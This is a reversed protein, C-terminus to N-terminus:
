KIFIKKFITKDVTEGEPKLKSTINKGNMTSSKDTLLLKPTENKLYM